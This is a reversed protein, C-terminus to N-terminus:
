ERAAVENRWAADAPRPTGDNERLGIFRFAPLTDQGDWDHLFLWTVYRLELNGTLDFFRSIFSAQDEEGGPYPPSSGGLWGLETFVVPGAWHDAIEEYYGEPIEAPTDYEFYPYSTFGLADVRGTGVLDDLPQWDAPYNWGNYRGVGKMLEYAFVTFVVTNPSVTKVSDYCACYESVWLAWEAASHTRYYSNTENGLFLFPPQHERAFEAVMFLYEDRTEQNGWSNDQPDSESTLDPEGGGGAWGLGVAPTFGYQDAATVAVSALAPAQGASEVDDRWNCHFAIIRGWPAHGSFHDIWDQDTSGSTHGRPSLTVGMSFTHDDDIIDAPNEGCGYVLISATFLISLGTLRFYGPIENLNRKM